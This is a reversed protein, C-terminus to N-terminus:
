LAALRRCRDLRPDVRTHVHLRWGFNLHVGHGGILEEGVSTALGASTPVGLRLGILLLRLADM